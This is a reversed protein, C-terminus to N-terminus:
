RPYGNEELWDELGPLVFVYMKYWGGNARVPTKVTWHLEQGSGETRLVGRRALRRLLTRHRPLSRRLLRPAICLQTVGSCENIFAGQDRMEADSMPSTVGGRLDIVGHEAVWTFMRQVPDTAIRLGLHLRLCHVAAAKCDLDKPLIDYYQALLGATYILGFLDKKRSSLQGAAVVQSMKSFDAIREEIGNSLNAEDRHRHQVLAELFAPLASGHYLAVRARLADAFRSAADDNAEVANFAGGPTSPVPIEALRDEVAAAADASEHGLLESATDNSTMTIITRTQRAPGIKDGM